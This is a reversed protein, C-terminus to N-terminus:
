AAQYVYDRAQLNVKLVFLDKVYKFVLVASRSEAYPYLSFFIYLTRKVSSSCITTSESVIINFLFKSPCIVKNEADLPVFASSSARDFGMSM